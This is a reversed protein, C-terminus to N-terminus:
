YGAVNKKATTLPTNPYAIGLIAVKVGGVSRVVYPKTFLRKSRSDVVNAAVVHFQAEGIRQRLVDMGFDPEHNGLTLADYRLANMLEVVAKGETSGAVLTDGIADGADLLLLNDSESRARKVATALRDFGGLTRGALDGEWGRWNTIHGHIDNTHLITLTKRDAATIPLAVPM